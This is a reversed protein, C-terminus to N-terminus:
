VLDNFRQSEMNLDSTYKKAEMKRALRQSRRLGKKEKGANILPEALRIADKTLSHVAVQPNHSNLEQSDSGKQTKRWTWLIRVGLEWATLQRTALLACDHSYNLSELAQWPAQDM